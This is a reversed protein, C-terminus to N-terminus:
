KVAELLASWDLIVREISHSEGEAERAVLFHDLNATGDMEGVGRPLRFLPRPASYAPPTGPTVDISMVTRSDADVYVLERGDQRWRPAGGKDSVNPSGFAGGPSLSRQAALSPFDRVYLDLRGSEDSLYAISRGDPSIAGYLENFRTAFLPTVRFSDGPTVVYVDQQTDTGQVRMTMSHGNPEWSLPSNFVAQMRALMRLSGPSDPDLSWLDQHSGHLERVFIVRHGDPTWIPVYNGGDFTYRQMTERQLDAVWIMADLAQDPTFEVALRRGDPSITFRNYLGAQLALPASVRGQRDVWYLKQLSAADNQVLTGNASVSVVPAGFANPALARLGPVSV